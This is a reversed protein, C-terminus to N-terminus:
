RSDHWQRFLELLEDRPPAPADTHALHHTLDITLRMQHLHISCYGCEALHAEFRHRDEDSLAEELYETVLDVLQQCSIDHM